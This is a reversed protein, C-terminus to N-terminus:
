TGPELDGDAFDDESVNEGADGSDVDDGFEVEIDGERLCLAFYLGSLIFFLISIILSFLRNERLYRVFNDIGLFLNTLAFFINM